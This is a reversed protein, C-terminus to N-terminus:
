IFLLIGHPNAIPVSAIVIAPASFPVASNPNALKVLPANANTIASKALCCISFFLSLGSNAISNFYFIYSILDTDWGKKHEADIRRHM